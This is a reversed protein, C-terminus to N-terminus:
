RPYNSVALSNGFGQRVGGCLGIDPFDRGLSTFFDDTTKSRRAVILPQISAVAEVQPGGTGILRPAIPM